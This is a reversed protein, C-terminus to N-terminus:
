LITYSSKFLLDNKMNITFHKRLPSVNGIVKDNFIYSSVGTFDNKKKIELNLGQIKQNHKQAAWHFTIFLIFILGNPLGIYILARSM